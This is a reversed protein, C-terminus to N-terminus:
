KKPAGGGQAKIVADVANGNSKVDPKDTKDTDLVSKIIPSTEPKKEAKTERLALLPKKVRPDEIMVLLATYAKLKEVARVEYQSDTWTITNGDVAGAGYKGQMASSFTEFNRNDAPIISVDFSIAMKWLKGEHFFFFRRNNKGDKNEWRNLMAESTKHAFEGEIISVDWGGVNTGNFEVYSKQIDSVERKKESRLKDKKINDETAKIKEEYQTDIEKSLTKIVEDKSMGFKFGAMDAVVKKKGEVGLAVVKVVKKPPPKTAEKGKAPAKPAPAKKADPAALAVSGLGLGFSLSLALLHSIRKM